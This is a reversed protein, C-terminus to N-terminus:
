AWNAKMLIPYAEDVISSMRLMLEFCEAGCSDLQIVADDEAIVTNDTENIYFKVWRFKSNLESCVKYMAPKKEESVKCFERGMIHVNTGKENFFLVIQLTDVNKCGFYAILVDENDGTVKVKLGKSEFYAMAVKAAMNMVTD